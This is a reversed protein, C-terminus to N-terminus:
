VCGDAVTLNIPSRFEGIVTGNKGIYSVFRFTPLTFKHVDYLRADSM